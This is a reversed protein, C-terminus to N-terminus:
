GGLAEEVLEEDHFAEVLRERLREGTHGAKREITAIARVVTLREEHETLEERQRQELEKALAPVLANLYAAPNDVKALRGDLLEAAWEVAAAPFKSLSSVLAKRDRPGNGYRDAIHEISSLSEGEDNKNAKSDSENLVPLNKGSPSSSNKRESQFAKKPLLYSTTKGLGRERIQIWGAGRLEGLYNRISRGTVGLDEAMQSDGPYRKQTWYYWLLMAYALKAGAALDADKVLLMPVQIFGAELLEDEVIIQGEDVPM